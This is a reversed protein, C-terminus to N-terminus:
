QLSSITSILQALRNECTYLQKVKQYGNQAINRREDEHSLYYNCKDFLEELSTYTELDTGIQFMDELEPQYNTILFGGSGLVDFIRLSLGTQIPRMTINLNIKSLHFIKPMEHFTHATGKMNAHPVASADSKTYLNLSFNQSLMNLTRIRETEAIQMGIFSHAVTYRDISELFGPTCQDVPSGKISSIISDPLTEEIFNYGFVKLQAEVIGNIYGRTFDDLQMQNLPNLDSYLSGVFSIDSCFQQRDAETIGAITHDLRQVNAGLPLHHICAPNYSKFRQYQANDFLFIRNCKNKISTSFLEIVPCDVSWCVYLTNLKECIESISPNFNISFVFMLPTRANQSDMICKSVIDITESSFSGSGQTASKTIVHIGFSEFASIVDPEYINNFRFFLINMIIGKQLWYLPHPSNIHRIKLM